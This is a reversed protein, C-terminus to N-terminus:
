RVTLGVATAAAAQQEDRGVLVIDDDGALRPCEELAVALHLADLTPLRHDLVLRYAREFVGPPRLALLASHATRM